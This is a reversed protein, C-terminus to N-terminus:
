FRIGRVLRARLRDGTTTCPESGPIGWRSVIGSAGCRPADMSGVTSVLGVGKFCLCRTDEAVFNDPVAALPWAEM